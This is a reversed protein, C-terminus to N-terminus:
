IARADCGLRFACGACRGVSPRARGDYPRRLDALLGTLRDREHPGYAVAFEVGDGYRLVGYPPARGTREETLLCYAAVQVRHSRPPGRLPARRRKLEVPVWPGAEPGRLEDPRGILRYRESRLTIGARGVDASRLRGHRRARHGARWQALGALLLGVGAVFLLGVLRPDAM